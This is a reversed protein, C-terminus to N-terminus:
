KIVINVLKNKVYIKKVITKDTILKKVNDIEFSQKFIQDEEQDPATELLARKKGNVQIVINITEEKILNPDFKPWNSKHINQNAYNKEWCESAIHPTFPYILILFNQFINQFLEKNAKKEHLMKSIQNSFEYFKAVAVNFHFNEINYTIEKFSVRNYVGM